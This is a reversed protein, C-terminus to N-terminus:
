GTSCAVRSRLTMRELGVNPLSGILFFFFTIYPQLLFFLSAHVSSGIHASHSRRKFASYLFPSSTLPTEMPDPFHFIVFVPFPPPQDIQFGNPNTLQRKCSNFKDEGVARVTFVSSARGEPTPPVFLLNRPCVQTKLPLLKLSALTM